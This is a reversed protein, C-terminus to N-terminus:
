SSKPPPPPVRALSALREREAAQTQAISERFGRVVNRVSTEIIDLYFYAGVMYVLLTVHFTMAIANAPGAKPLMVGAVSVILFLLSALRAVHFPWHLGELGHEPDDDEFFARVVAHDLHGRLSELKASILTFFPLAGLLTGAFIYQHYNDEASTFWAATGTFSGAVIAVWFDWGKLIRTVRWRHRELVKM